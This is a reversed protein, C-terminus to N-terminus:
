PRHGRSSPIQAPCGNKQPDSSAPGKAEPCADVTDPIEDGDADDEPCGDNDQIGDRDEPLDPCEDLDDPVGDDDRDHKRPAWGLALIARFVPVGVATDLGVDVGSVVYADRDRGLTVRDSVAVLAPSLLSAGSGGLGFPAVPGAPLWGHAALEWAQRDDADLTPALAKPRLVLGASWPLEDGFGLGGAASPWIRRATRLSYGLTARLEAIGLAYAAHLALSSTVSGDGSFSRRDGTPLTLSAVAALGPGLTAGQRDNSVITAKGDLAIDGLGARPVAGGTVITAPLASAGDQWLFGPIDVGVAARNGIGLGAVLDAGIQHEIPRSIVSGAGGRVSTPDQAYQLWASVNWRWPGPTTVPDLILGAAPDTSPRWTRADVSPVSQGFAAPLKGVGLLV